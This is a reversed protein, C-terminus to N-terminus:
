EQTKIRSAAENTVLCLGPINRGELDDLLRSADDYTLSTAEVREFSIVSWIPQDLEGEAGVSGTSHVQGAGTM